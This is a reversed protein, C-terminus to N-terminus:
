PVFIPVDDVDTGVKAYPLVAPVEPTGSSSLLNILGPCDPRTGFQHGIVAVGTCDDLCFGPIGYNFYTTSCDLATLGRVRQGYIAHVPPDTQAEDGMTINQMELKPWDGKCMVAAKLGGGYIFGDRITGGGDSFLIGVVNHQVQFSNLECIWGAAAILVGYRGSNVRIDHMTTKYGNNWVSIGNSAENVVVSNIESNPSSDLWLGCGGQLTMNQIFVPDQQTNDGQRFPSWVRGYQSDIPIMPGDHDAFKPQVIAGSRGTIVVNKIRGKAAAAMQAGDPWRSPIAGICLDEHYAQQVPGAPSKGRLKGDATISATKGDFTVLVDYWNRVALIKDTFVAGAGAPGWNWSLKLLGNYSMVMFMQRLSPLYVGEMGQSGILYRADFEGSLEDLWLSFRCAFPVAGSLEQLLWNDSLNCWQNMTGDLNWCDGEIPPKMHSSPIHVLPPFFQGDVSGKCVLRCLNKDHGDLKVGPPIYLSKSLLYDGQDEAFDVRGGRGVSDLVAQIKATPMAPTVKQSRTVM